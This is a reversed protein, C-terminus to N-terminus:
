IVLFLSFKNVLTIYSFLADYDINLHLYVHHKNLSLNLTTGFILVMIHLHNRGMPQKSFLCECTLRLAEWISLTELLTGQFINSLYVPVLGNLSKYIMTVKERKIIKAITLKQIIDDAPEGYSSNIVIRAICDEVEATYAVQNGWLEVWM